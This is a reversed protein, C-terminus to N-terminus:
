KNEPRVIGIYKEVNKRYKAYDAKYLLLILSDIVYILEVSPSYTQLRTKVPNSLIKLHAQAYATLSNKMMNTIVIIKVKHESAFKALEILEKTEGTKSVLFLLDNEKAFLLRQKVEILSSSYFSDFNMEILSNSLYSAISGTALFGYCIIQKSQIIMSIVTEFDEDTNLDFAIDLLEKYKGHIKDLTVRTSDGLQVEDDEKESTDNMVDNLFKKFTSYGLKQSFRIITSQGVELIEALEKSTKKSIAGKNAMIYDAIKAESGTLQPYINKIKTLYM